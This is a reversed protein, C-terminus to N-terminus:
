CRSRWLPSLSSFVSLCAPLQGGAPEVPSLCTHHGPCGRAPLYRKLTHQWPLGGPVWLKRPDVWGLIFGREAQALTCGLSCLDTAQTFPGSDLLQDHFIFFLSPGM